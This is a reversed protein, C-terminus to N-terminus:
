NRFPTFYHSSGGSTNIVDGSKVFYSLSNTTNNCSFIAVENNNIKVYVVGSGSLMVTYMGNSTATYPITINQRNGYDPYEITKKAYETLANNVATGSQPDHSKPRFEQDVNIGGIEEDTILYIANEEYNGDLADYAARTLPIVKANGSLDNRTSYAKLLTQM